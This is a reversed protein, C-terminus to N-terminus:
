WEPFLGEGVSVLKDHRKSPHFKSEIKTKKDYSYMTFIARLNGGSARFADIPNQLQRSKTTTPLIHTYSTRTFLLILTIESFTDAPSFNGSYPPSDNWKQVSILRYM